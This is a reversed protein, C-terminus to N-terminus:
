CIEDNKQHLGRLKKSEDSSDFLDQRITRKSDVSKASSDPRAPEAGPGADAGAPEAGALEPAPVELAFPLSVDLSM